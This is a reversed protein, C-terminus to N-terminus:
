ANGQYGQYASQYAAPEGVAVNPDPYIGSFSATKAHDYSVEPLGAGPLSIPHATFASRENVGPVELEEVMEQLFYSSLLLLLINIIAVAFGGGYSFTYTTPAPGLPTQLHTCV